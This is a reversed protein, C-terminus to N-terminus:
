LTKKKRRREVSHMNVERERERQLYSMNKINLQYKTKSTKGSGLSPHLFTNCYDTSSNSIGDKERDTQRDVEEM